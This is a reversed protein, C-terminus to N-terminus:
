PPLLCENADQSRRADRNHSAFMLHEAGKAPEFLPKSESQLFQFNNM